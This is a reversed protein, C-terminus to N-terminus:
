LLNVQVHITEAQMKNNYVRLTSGFGVVQDRAIVELASWVAVRQDTNGMQTMGEVTTVFNVGNVIVRIRQSNKLGPIIAKTRM